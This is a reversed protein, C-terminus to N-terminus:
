VLLILGTHKIEWNVSKFKIGSFAESLKIQSKLQSLSEDDENGEGGKGVLRSLLEEKSLAAVKDGSGEDGGVLSLSLYYVSLMRYIAYFVCVSMLFLAM